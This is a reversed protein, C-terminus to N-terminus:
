QYPVTFHFYSGRGIESEVWIRGGNKDVCDKCLGLGLGTGTEQATGKETFNNRIDFLKEQDEKKIGKGTDAVTIKLFVRWRSPICM